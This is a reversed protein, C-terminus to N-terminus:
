ARAQRFLDTMLATLSNLLILPLTVVGIAGQGATKTFINSIEEYSSSTMAAVGSIGRLAKAMPSSGTAGFTEGFEVGSAILQSAAKAAVDMGYATGAVAYDVDDKLKEWSKGLGEIQFKAQEMNMARSKGGTVIQRPIATMINLTADSIKRGINAFAGFAVAELASFGSKCTELGRNIPEFNVRKISSNINDFNKGTVSFDLAQQLKQVTSITTTANKEFNQNDLSLEVVKSDIVASSSRSM